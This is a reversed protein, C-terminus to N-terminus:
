LLYHLLSIFTNWGPIIDEYRLCKENFLFSSNGLTFEQGLM